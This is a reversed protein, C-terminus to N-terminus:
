FARNSGTKAVDAKSSVSEAALIGSAITTFVIELSRSSM